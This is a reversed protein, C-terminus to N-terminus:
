TKVLKRVVSVKDNSIRLYYVGAAVDLEIKSKLLLIKSQLVIRGQEDYVELMSGVLENSVALQVSGESFPNPYVLVQEEGVIDQVGSVVIYTANSLEPCGNTDTILLRYEGTKTASFV